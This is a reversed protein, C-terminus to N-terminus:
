TQAHAPSAIGTLQALEKWFLPTRAIWRTSGAGTGTVTECGSARLTVAQYREGPASFVLVYGGGVDAPCSIVGQPMKPLRCIIGALRRAAGPDSITIGPVPRPLPKTQGIQSRAAFRVVRVSTIGRPEACLLRIMPDGGSAVPRHSSGHGPQKGSGSQKGGGSRARGSAPQGSAAQHGSQANGNGSGSATGGAAVKGCGALASAVIVIFGAAAAISAATKKQRPTAQTARPGSYATRM